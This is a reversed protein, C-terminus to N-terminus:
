DHLTDSALAVMLASDLAAIATHLSRVTKLHLEAAELAADSAAAAAARAYQAVTRVTADDPRPQDQTDASRPRIRNLFMRAASLGPHNHAFQVLDGWRYLRKGGDIRSPLADDQRHAWNTLTTASIGSRVALERTSFQDSSDPWQPMADMHAYRHKNPTEINAYKRAQPLSFGHPARCTTWISGRAVPRAAIVCCLRQIAM